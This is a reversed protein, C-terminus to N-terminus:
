SPEERHLQKANRASYAADSGSRCLGVAYGARPRGAASVQGMASASLSGCIGFIVRRLVANATKAAAIMATATASLRGLAPVWLSSCVPHITARRSLSPRVSNPHCAASPPPRTSGRALYKGASACISRQSLELGTSTFPFAIPRILARSTSPSRISNANVSVVPSRTLGRVRYTGNSAAGLRQSGLLTIVTARASSVTSCRKLVTLAPAHCVQPNRLSPETSHQPALTSPWVSAGLPRKLATSAPGSWVQASRSLPVM